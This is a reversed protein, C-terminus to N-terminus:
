HAPELLEARLADDEITEIWQIAHSPFEGAMIRVYISVARDRSPGGPLRNLWHGATVLDNKGWVEILSEMAACRLESESFREVWTAAQDPSRGGWLRVINVVAEDQSDGAPIRSAAFVAARPPDHIGWDIAIRGLIKSKLDDDRLQNVWAAASERDNTAWQLAAYQLLRDREPGSPLHMALDLATRAEKKDAAQLAIANQAETKNRNDPLQRVWALAAALDKQGWVSAVQRFAQRAFGGEPLRAVWRAAEEPAQELWRDLLLAALQTSGAPPQPLLMLDFVAWWEAEPLERAMDEFEFDLEEGAAQDFLDRLRQQWDPETGTPTADAQASATQSARRPVTVSEPEAFRGNKQGFVQRVALGAALILLCVLCAKKV